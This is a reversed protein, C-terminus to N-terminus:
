LLLKTLVQPMYKINTTDYEWKLMEHSIYLKNTKLALERITVEHAKIQLDTSRCYLPTPILVITRKIIGTHFKATNYLKLHKFLYPRSGLVL